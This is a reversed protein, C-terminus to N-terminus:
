PRVIGRRDIVCDEPLVIALGGEAVFLPQPPKFRHRFTGRHGRLRAYQIVRVTDSRQWSSKPSDVAVRVPEVVSGAWFELQKREQPTVPVVGPVVQTYPLVVLVCRSIKEGTPDWMLGWPGQLFYNCEQGYLAQVDGLKIM